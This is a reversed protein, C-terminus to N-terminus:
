SARRKARAKPAPPVPDDDFPFEADPEDFLPARSKRGRAVGSWPRAAQLRLLVGWVAAYANHLKDDRVSNKFNSYGIGLVSDVLVRGIDERSILARYAYDRHPTATAAVGFIHEIDGKRRARVILAADPTADRQAVISFFGNNLCIWM